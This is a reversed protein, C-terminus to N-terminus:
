VTVLWKELKRLDRQIADRREPMDAAGSLKIDDTFKSLTCKTGSDLDNIFVNFPVPGLVSEWPVGHMVLRWESMSDNVVVRQIHGDFWNRM